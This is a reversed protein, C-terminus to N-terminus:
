RTRGSKEGNGRKKIKKKTNKRWANPGPGVNTGREQLLESPKTTKTESLSAQDSPDSTKYVAKKKKVPAALSKKKKRKRKEKRKKQGNTSAQHITTVRQQWTWREEM